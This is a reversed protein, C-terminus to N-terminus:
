EARKMPFQQANAKGNMTGSIEAVMSDNSIKTYTIKQPFDHQPNEFVLVHDSASTMSFEVPDGGNQDKVTPIYLLAEGRQALSLKEDSVTDNAIVFYSAGKYASDNEVEWTETYNGQASNNEWRGILWSAYALKNTKVPNSSSTKENGKNTCAVMLLLM